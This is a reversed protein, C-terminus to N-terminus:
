IEEYSDKKIIIGRSIKNTKCYEQLQKSSYNILKMTRKGLSKFKNICEFEFKSFENESIYAIDCSPLSQLSGQNELAMLLRKVGIAFGVAEMDKNFKLGLKDYRGGDLIPVGLDKAMGKFVIGSYYGGDLLGFDISIYEELNAAEVAKYIKSLNEVANLSIDNKCLKKAKEFVTKDGFLTSLALFDSIFNKNIKKDQLFREIGLTDKNRIYNKLTLSDEDKLGSELMLGNFFDIHGIDILFNKLGCNKLSTIALLIIEIDGEIGTSGLLEVGAQAFERTRSTSSESLYEFSNAIYFFRNLNDDFKQAAMRCIQITTDPRLVLLSGDNDTMKFMKNIGGVSTETYLDCYELTPTEVKEYGCEYFSKALIQETLAKNYCEEPLYDQVGYPLQFKKM